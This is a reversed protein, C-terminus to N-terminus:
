LPPFLVSSLQSFNKVWKTTSQKPKEAHLYYVAIGLNNAGEIDALEDDGIYCVEDPQRGVKELALKFITPAPKEQGAEESSVLFDILHDLSLQILKQLQIQATLNTVIVIKRRNRRATQLFESSGERLKMTDLFTRWYIEEAKLTLQPETKGALTEILKQFYLLRSHSAGQGALDQHVRKRARTYAKAVRDYSWGGTRALYALVIPLAQGHCADYDYFTHDLDALIAQYM